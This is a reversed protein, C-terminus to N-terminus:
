FELAKKRCKEEADYYSMRGAQALRVTEKVSQLYKGMREIAVEEDDKFRIIVFGGLIDEAVDQGKHAKKIKTRLESLLDTSRKTCDDLSFTSVLAKDKGDNVILRVEASNARPDVKIIELKKLRLDVARM